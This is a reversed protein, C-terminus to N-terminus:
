RRAKWTLAHESKFFFIWEVPLYAPTCSILFFCTKVFPLIGPTFNQFDIHQTGTRRTSIDHSIKSLRGLGGPDGQGKYIERQLIVSLGSREQIHVM